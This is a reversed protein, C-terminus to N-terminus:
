FLTIYNNIYAGPKIKQMKYNIIGLPVTKDNQTYFEYALSDLHFADLITNNTDIHSYRLANYFYLWNFYDTVSDNYQGNQYILNSSTMMRDFLVGSTISNNLNGFTFALSQLHTNFYFTDAQSYGMKNIAFNILALFLIKKM